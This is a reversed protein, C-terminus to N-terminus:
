FSNEYKKLFFKQWQTFLISSWKSKYKNWKLYFNSSQIYINVLGNRYLGNVEDVAM